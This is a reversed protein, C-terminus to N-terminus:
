YPRHNREFEPTLKCFSNSVFQVFIEIAFKSDLHLCLKDEAQLSLLIASSNRGFKAAEPRLGIRTVRLTVALLRERRKDNAKLRTNGCKSSAKFQISTDIAQRFEVYGPSQLEHLRRNVDIPVSIAAALTSM